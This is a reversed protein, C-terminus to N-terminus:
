KSVIYKTDNENEPHIHINQVPTKFVKSANQITLQDPRTHHLKYYNTKLQAETNGEPINHFHHKGYGNSIQHILSLNTMEPRSLESVNINSIYKGQEKDYYLDKAAKEVWPMTEKHLLNDRIGRTLDTTATDDTFQYLGKASTFKNGGYTHGSNEIQGLRVQWDHTNQVGQELNVNSTQFTGIPHNSHGVNGNIGKRIIEVSDNNFYPYREPIINNKYNDPDLAPRTPIYKNHYEPDKNLIRENQIYHKVPTGAVKVKEFNAENTEPDNSWHDMMYQTYDELILEKNIELKM